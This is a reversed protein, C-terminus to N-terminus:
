KLEWNDLYPPHLKVFCYYILETACKLTIQDSALSLNNFFTLQPCDRFYWNKNSM